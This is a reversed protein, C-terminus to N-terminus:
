ESHKKDTAMTTIGCVCNSRSNCNNTFDTLCFSGYRDFTIIMFDSSSDLNKGLLVSYWLFTFKGESLIKLQFHQKDFKWSYIM